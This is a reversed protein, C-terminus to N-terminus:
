EDLYCKYHNSYDPKIIVKKIGNHENLNFKDICWEKVKDTAINPNAYIIAKGNSIEVRGRPYYNFPKNGTYKKSLKDWTNEHNFNNGSKSTFNMNLNGSVDGASNCPIQFYLKSSLIDNVDTIWFIGKYLESDENLLQLNEFLDM